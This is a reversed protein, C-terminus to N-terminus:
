AGSASSGSVAPGSASHLLSLFVPESRLGGDLHYRVLSRVVGDVVRWDAPEVKLRAVDAPSNTNVFRLIKMAPVPLSVTEDESRCEACEVSWLKYQLKAEAETVPRRCVHCTTLELQYGLQRLTRLLAAYLALANPPNQNLWALTERVTAFLAADPDAEQTFRDLAEIYFNALATHPLSHRLTAHSDITASGALIDITRSRAVFLQSYIFPELHGTLKAAPKRASIARVTIKGKDPTLIRLMKDRDRYAWRRLILGETKYTDAM